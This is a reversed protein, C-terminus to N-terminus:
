DFDENEYVGWLSKREVWGRYGSVDVRCWYSACEKIPAIVGPELKALLRSDNDPGSRMVAGQEGLVIGSRRGSLLMKHVWGEEGELDRIKRWGGYELIIEVPLGARRFVWKIPYNQGPGARVFVKDDRLTVFRPLPYDTSRFADKTEQARVYPAQLCLSLVYIFTIAFLKYM